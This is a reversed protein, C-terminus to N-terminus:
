IRHVLSTEEDETIEELKRRLKRRGEKRLKEMQTNTEDVLRREEKKETKKSKCIAKVEIVYDEQRQCALELFEELIDEQKRELEALMEPDEDADEEGDSPM